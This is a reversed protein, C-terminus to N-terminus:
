KSKMKHAKKQKELEEQIARNVEIDVEAISSGGYVHISYDYGKSNPRKKIKIKSGKILNGFPKMAEQVYSRLAEEQMKEFNFKENITLFHFQSNIVEVNLKGEDILNKILNHTTEGSSLGEEFMHRIVNAKTTRQNAKQRNM